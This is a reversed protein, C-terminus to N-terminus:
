QAALAGLFPLKAGISIMTLIFVALPAALGLYVLWPIESDTQHRGARSLAWIFAATLVNGAFVAALVIQFDTSDMGEPHASGSVKDVVM